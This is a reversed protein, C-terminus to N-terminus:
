FVECDRLLIKYTLKQSKNKGPSMKLEATMDEDMWPARREQLWMVKLLLNINAEIRSNCTAPCPGNIESNNHSNMM